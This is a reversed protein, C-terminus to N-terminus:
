KMKRIVSMPNKNSLTKVISDLNCILANVHRDLREAVISELTYSRAKQICGMEEKLQSCSFQLSM